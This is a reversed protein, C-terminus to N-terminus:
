LLKFVVINHNSTSRIYSVVKVQEFGGPRLQPKIYFPYPFCSDSGPGNGTRQQPKIYFPYPFCSEQLAVVGPYTTTQHLVSIPFLPRCQGAQHIATTTQHLVSIPFLGNIYSIKTMYNHNSTSRIHSVVLFEGGHVLLRQPKIYFPYLFCRGPRCSREM